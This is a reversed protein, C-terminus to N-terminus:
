TRPDTGASLGVRREDVLTLKVLAEDEFWHWTRARHRGDASLQIMETVRSAPAAAYAFWMYLTGPEIAWCEGRIRGDDFVIRDDAARLAGEYRLTEARGDPHRYRSTQRYAVPGEDFTEVEIRYDQTAVVRWDPPVVHTYRGEWVGQHRRLLALTRSASAEPMADM